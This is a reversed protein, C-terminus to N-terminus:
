RRCVLFLGSAQWASRALESGDLGVRDIREVTWGATKLESKIERESFRHMFMKDLGRYAYTADGFEADSRFSQIWSRMLRRMGGAERLAAWRRHAHLILCGGPRVARAIHCLFRVRNARGQIMGITSFMCIAHDAISDAIADLQVLNARVPLITGAAPTQSAARGVYWEVLTELMSQSLDVALVDYGLQRVPDALRGTGAGLDLIVPRSDHSEAARETSRRPSVTDLTELVYRRDLECLPTDAVFDDYHRAITRQHVYQWTGTAVGPPRLWDPPRPSHPPQNM